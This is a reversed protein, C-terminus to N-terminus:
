KNQSPLVYWFESLFFFSVVESSKGKVKGRQANQMQEHCQEILLASLVYLKKVRLPKTRKKSEEDAIKFFLVLSNLTSIFFWYSHINYIYINSSASWERPCNCAQVFRPFWALSRNQMQIYYNPSCVSSYILIDFHLICM